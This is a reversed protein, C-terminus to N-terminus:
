GFGEPTVWDQASIAMVKFLEGMQDPKTLRACATFIDEARTPSTAALMAARANIGLSELWAGQGCPGSIRMDRMMALNSLEMFNVHATLDHEGPNTFPDAFKHSKIAQLTSGLGSRSYGYDIILLMGGQARLRSMLTYLIDSAIPCTEFISNEPANRIDLPVLHDVAQIGAVKHFHGDQAIAILQERWGSDTKVYQKIPLADFFENAVILMSGNDPLSDIRDHFQARHVNTAQKARLAVSTEVFHVSPNFDFKAMARLCDTAMTGRGPGLEVYHCPNPRNQRMWLDTLCLGIMEGFIQSIEPATIFDGEAGLPDSANYYADNAVRMYEAVSIPGSAAIQKALM